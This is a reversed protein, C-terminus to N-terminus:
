AVIKIEVHGTRLVPAAVVVPYRMLWKTRDPPLLTVPVIPTITRNPQAGPFTIEVLLTHPMETLDCEVLFFFVLHTVPTNEAPILIDTNYIGGVSLKNTVSYVVDDCVLVAAKYM